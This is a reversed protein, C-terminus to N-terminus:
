EIVENARAFVSAPVDLGLAKAAKLNLVLEYKTPAQVPLDAPKEGNLIRDVYGAAQRYQDNRVPGYSILGGIDVFRRESYLAPLRHRAAIAVVAENSVYIPQVGGATVILGGNSRSTFETIAREIEDAHSSFFPRVEVGFTPAATQIAGFQGSGPITPARLVAVRTLGPAFQKLLELWKGGISYEIGLFGTTNGGPRALNAVLGGGVPDITSVFVIPITRTREQLMEVNVASSALIVDPALAVLEAAYRRRREPDGAGWRVDFHINRGEIWGSHQLEQRFVAINARADTDSEPFQSLVGVRRERDRQQARAALPWAAVGGLGAIFERRRLRISM